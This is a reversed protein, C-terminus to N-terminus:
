SHERGSPRRSSSVPRSPPPSWSRGAPYGRDRFARRPRAPAPRTRLDAQRGDVLEGRGRPRRRRATPSPATSNAAAAGAALTPVSAELPGPVSTARGAARVISRSCRWARRGAPRRAQGVDRGVDVVRVRGRRRWVARHGGPAPSRSPLSSTRGCTIMSAPGWAVARNRSNKTPLIAFALVRAAYPRAM